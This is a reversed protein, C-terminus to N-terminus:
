LSVIHVNVVTVTGAVPAENAAVSLDAAPVTVSKDILYDKGVTAGIISELAEKFVFGGGAVKKSGGIAEGALFTTLATAINAEITSAEESVTDRVWVEYTVAVPLATAAVTTATVALPVTKTQIAEDVAGLSTSTDGIAGTLTGSGDAVYVTVNGSGDPVTTVRTVGANAGDDKTAELAIFRYADAAGNPSLTGTKALCRVRLQPDTEADTGVLAGPNTVTVGLMTTELTDIFGVPSTSDAGIEVAQFPVLKGTEFAALTFAATNRYTKGTTSNSVIIDGVGPSFVGGGGNDFQVNGAAFTGNDKDVGYVYYAVLALWDGSATELFGSEAIRAQLTSFASVVISVGAIITRAVAGPKWSTTAVGSAALAAYIADEVEERTLPETLEELTAM